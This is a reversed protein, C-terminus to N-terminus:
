FKSKCIIKVLSCYVKLTAVLCLFHTSPKLTPLNHFLLYMLFQHFISAVWYLNNQQTRQQQRPASLHWYDGLNNTILIQVFKHKAKLFVPPPCLIKRPDTEEWNGEAWFLGQALPSSKQTAYETIRRYAKSNLEKANYTRVHFHSILCQWFPTLFITWMLKSIITFCQNM